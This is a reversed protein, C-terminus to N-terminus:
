RLAYATARKAKRATLLLYLGAAFAAAAILYFANDYGGGFEVMLGFCPPGSVIGFFLFFQGGGAAEGIKAPPALRAFESLLLGLVGNTSAGLMVAVLATLWFPWAPTFFSMAVVSIAMLVGILGLLFWSSLFRGAVAGWAIFGLFTWEDAELGGRLSAVGLGLVVALLGGIVMRPGPFFAGGLIAAVAVVSVATVAVVERISM